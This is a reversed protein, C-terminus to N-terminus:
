NELYFHGEKVISAVSCLTFTLDELTRFIESTITIKYKVTSYKIGGPESNIHM